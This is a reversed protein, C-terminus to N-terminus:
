GGAYREDNSFPFDVMFCVTQYENTLRVLSTVAIQSCLLVPESDATNFSIYHQTSQGMTQRLCSSFACAFTTWSKINRCNRRQPHLAHSYMLM